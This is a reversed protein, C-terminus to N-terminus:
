SIVIEDSKQQLFTATYLAPHIHVIVDRGLSRELQGRGGALQVDHLEEEAESGRGEEGGQLHVGHGEAGGGLLAAVTGQGRGGAVALPLDQVLQHRVGGGEGTLVRAPLNEGQLLDQGLPRGAQAAEVVVLLIVPFQPSSVLRSIEVGSKGFCIDFFQLNTPQSVTVRVRQKISHIFPRNQEQKIRVCM